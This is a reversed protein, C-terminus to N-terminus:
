KVASVQILEALQQKSLPEATYKLAVAEPVLTDLGKIEDPWLISKPFLEDRIRRATAEPIRAFEAYDKVAQDSTYMYDLTERYAQMFRKLVDKRKQLTDVNTILVRITQDAVIKADNAKAVINIKGEELEKMGFPPAAWGVDVQGSMVATLTAAPNGTATPKATLHYEKIFALVISHTSSGNTSYAITKGDTDKLNKIGSATPAYWYDAAGTSEAGIIRVPAGKSFASFVGMTGAAMGVDVSGSIVAQQTEGGGSTYLLELAIGHKKFIGAKEGLHPIASNWNGRQGIAVRVLDDATAPTLHLAFAALLAFGLMLGKSRVM